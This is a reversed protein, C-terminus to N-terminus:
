LGGGDAMLRMKIVVADTSDAGVGWVMCRLLVSNIEFHLSWSDDGSVTHSVAYNSAVNSSNVVSVPCWPGASVLSESCQTVVESSASNNHWVHLTATKYGSADGGVSIEGTNACKLDSTATWSWDTNDDCAWIMDDTAADTTTDLGNETSSVNRARVTGSVSAVASSCVLAMASVLTLFRKM